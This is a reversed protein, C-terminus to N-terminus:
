REQWPQRGVIREGNQNDNVKRGGPGTEERFEKPRAAFDAHALGLVLLRYFRPDSIEGRWVIMQQDLGISAQRQLALLWDQVRARRDVDQEFTRRVSIAATEDAHHKGSGIAIACVAQLGHDLCATNRDHL